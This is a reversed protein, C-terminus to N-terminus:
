WRVPSPAIASVPRHSAWPSSPEVGTQVAQAGLFTVGMAEWQINNQTTVEEQSLEDVSVSTGDPLAGPPISIVSGIESALVGGAAGITASSPPSDVVNVSITHTTQGSPGAAIATLQLPGAAFDGADLFTRFGDAATADSGLESAAPRSPSAEWVSKAATVQV